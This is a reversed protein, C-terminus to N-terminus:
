GNIAIWMGSVAMFIYVFGKMKQPNIKKFIGTGLLSGLVLGVTGFAIPVLIGSPIVGMSYRLILLFINNIMFYCQTTAMYQKKDSLVSVLYLVMPPGSVSFLGGCVGSVVGAIAANTATPRIKVRGSFYYLWVALLVLFVGLARKYIGVDTGAMLFIGCASGILCFTIPFALQRWCVDKYCRILISVNLLLSLVTSITMASKYPLFLPMVAMMIIGFGFGTIAQIISSLFSIAGLFYTAVAGVEKNEIVKINNKEKGFTLIINQKFSQAM